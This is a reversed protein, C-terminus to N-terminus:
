RRSGRPHREGVGIRDLDQGVVLRGSFGGHAQRWKHEPWNGPVLHSLVLTRVGAREAVAGVDTVETHASLLHHFLGEQADTRPAPLLQEVWERDIAEHVLVDAGRALEVLNPTPGTDGSFVVVGDDTEFRFALAPFVPAHQVLTASVRVRDDEFFTVPSMRPAPTGNPDALYTAPIPVDRGVFLQDPVPKRNDRARDNYDTAFTRVMLEVMERTGPTPNDPAVLPPEPPPGFVPPLEGRNGPGWIPLPGDVLQLGNYLGETLVNNLDVVHDSHLHTLFIGALTDLPGDTDHRWSGLHAERAQRVVGAGTDVLYYRDGVLVASAIGARTTGPWYAPGGSTGLLVLQTRHGEASRRRRAGGTAASAGPLGLVAATVGTGGALVGRRSLGRTLPNSSKESM